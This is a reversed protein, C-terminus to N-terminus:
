LNGEYADIYLQKMGDFNIDKPNPATSPDKLAMSALMDFDFDVKLEKLTHPIELDKRISLIWEMFGNFSQNDIELYKTLLIIRERIVPENFKLVYPTFIANSLGHHIDNVANIPHSLSHILGLGKQFATSGMASTVLLKSRSEIDSPNNFANLLHDKINKLGEVAIGDAMPHFGKACYAELCHALSDMGTAATLHQPLSITLNPDMIVLEPLMSQHFIIKKTHNTEDIILSSRGTESGTGATTPIAIVAPLNETNAHTWNDGIDEFFFLDRSQMSMFAIAKGADLSSGGGVAIIGDNQNARFCQVGDSINTGNPNGKIESFITYSMSNNELQSIIEKFGQNDLMYPDTVILPNSFNLHICANHLDNIRGIGFWIPTPYNWNVKQIDLM